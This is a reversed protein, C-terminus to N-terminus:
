CHVVACCLSRQQKILTLKVHTEFQKKFNNDSSFGMLSKVTNKSTELRSINLLQNPGSGEYSINTWHQFDTIQNGCKICSMIFVSKVVVTVGNRWQIVQLVIQM